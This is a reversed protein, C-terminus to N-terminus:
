SSNSQAEIEGDAAVVVSATRLRPPCSEGNPFTERLMVTSPGAVIAGDAAQLVLTLEDGTEDDVEFSTFAVENQGGLHESWGLPLCTADLCVEGGADVSLGLATADVFVGSEGGALTCAAERCGVVLTVSALALLARTVKRLHM